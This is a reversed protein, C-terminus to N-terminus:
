TQHRLQQLAVTHIKMILPTLWLTNCLQAAADRRTTRSCAPYLSPVSLDRLAQSVGKGGIGDTEVAASCGEGVGSGWVNFDRAM